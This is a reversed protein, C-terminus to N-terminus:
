EKPHRTDGVALPTIIDDILQGMVVEGTLTHDPTPSMADGEESSYPRGCCGRWEASAADLGIRCQMRAM